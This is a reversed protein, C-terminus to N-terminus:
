SGLQSDPDRPKDDEKRHLRLSDLGEIPIGRDSQYVLSQPGDEAPSAM